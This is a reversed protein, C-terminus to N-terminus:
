RGHGKAVPQAAPNKIQGQTDDILARM